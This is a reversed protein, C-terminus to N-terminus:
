ELHLLEPHFNLYLRKAERDIRGFKEDIFPLLVEKGSDSLKTKLLTNPGYELVDEIIGGSREEAGIVEFGIIEFYYFRQSDHALSPLHELPLYLAAGALASAQETNSIGEFHVVAKQNQWHFAVMKYPVLQGAIDLFFAEKSAYSQPDDVDLFLELAGKLGHPKRVYGVLFCSSKDM